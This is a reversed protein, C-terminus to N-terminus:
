GRWKEEMGVRDFNVIPNLGGTYQWLQKRSYDRSSTSIAAERFAGRSLKMSLIDIPENVANSIGHKSSFKHVAFRNERDVCNQRLNDIGQFAM